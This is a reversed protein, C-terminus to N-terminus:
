PRSRALLVGISDQAGRAAWVSVPAGNMLISFALRKGNATTVYGSLASAINLTGTKGHLNGAAATGLMRTRLTGDVGAVPLTAWYLDFDLRSTMAELLRITVAASLRNLYHLGSGDRLRVEGLDAGCEALFAREVAAGAATTGGRGFERGLGKMLIEATFNDSRKNMWRVVRALRASLETHILAAGDPVTATQVGGTVTIGAAVLRRRLEAAAALAPQAARRGGPMGQDLTLASLPGCEYIFSSKWGTVTRQRDFYSEDALVRGRITTVGLGKLATVFHAIDSTAFGLVRRQFQASSLTPDGYGKLYISGRLVGQADPAARVSWLETRFRHDAGWRAWATASTVLKQNSAPALLAHGNRGFLLEDTDANWVRVATGPGSLHYRVLVNKVSGGLDARAAQPLVALLLFLLLGAVAAARLRRIMAHAAGASM